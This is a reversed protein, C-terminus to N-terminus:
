DDLNNGTQAFLKRLDKSQKLASIFGEPTRLAEPPMRLEKAIRDLFVELKERDTIPKSEKALYGIGVSNDANGAHPAFGM